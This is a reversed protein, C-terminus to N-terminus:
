AKDNVKRLSELREDHDAKSNTGIISHIINVDAADIVWFNNIMRIWISRVSKSFSAAKVPLIAPAHLKGGSNLMRRLTASGCDAMVKDDEILRHIQRHLPSSSDYWPTRTGSLRAHQRWFLKAYRALTNYGDTYHTPPCLMDFDDLYSLYAVLAQAIYEHSPEPQLTRLWTTASQDRDVSVLYEKITSHALEVYVKSGRHHRHVESLQEVVRDESQGQGPHSRFVLKVFSSCKAFIEDAANQMRKGPDLFLESTGRRTFAIIWQVDDVCLHCQAYALWTLIDKAHQRNRDSIKGVMRDFMEVLSRPMM